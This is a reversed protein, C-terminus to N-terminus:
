WTSTVFLPGEVANFTEHVSTSGAFVVNTERLWVRPGANVQVVPGVMVQLAALMTTPATPANSTVTSIEGAAAFPELMLLVAVALELVFSAFVPLLLAVAVVVTEEFASRETLLFPGAVM